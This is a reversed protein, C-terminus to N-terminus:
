DSFLKSYNSMGSELEVKSRSQEGRWTLQYQSERSLRWQAKNRPVKRLLVLVVIM